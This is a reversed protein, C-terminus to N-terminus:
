ARAQQPLRAHGAPRPDLLEGDEALRLEMGELPRGVSGPRWQWPTNTSAVCSTESMGWVECIRIGLADFFELVEVPTPAAGIVFFEVQDLGLM